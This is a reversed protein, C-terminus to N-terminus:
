VYTIRSDVYCQFQCIIVLKHEFRLNIIIEVDHLKSTLVVEDLADCQSTSKIYVGAIKIVKV